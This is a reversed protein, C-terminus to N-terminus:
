EVGVERVAACFSAVFHPLRKAFIVLTEPDEDADCLIVVYEEEGTIANQFGVDLWKTLSLRISFFTGAQTHHRIFPVISEGLAAALKEEIEIKM